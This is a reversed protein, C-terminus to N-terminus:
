QPKGYRLVILEGIRCQAAGPPGATLIGLSANITLVMTSCSLLWTSQGAQAAGLAHEVFLGPLEEAAFWQNGFSCRHDITGVAGRPDRWLRKM